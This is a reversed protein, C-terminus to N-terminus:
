SHFAIPHLLNTMWDIQSLIAVIAYELGDMEVIIPNELDYHM